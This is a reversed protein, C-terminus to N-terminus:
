SPPGQYPAMASAEYGFTTNGIRISDGNNLLRPVNWDLRQGNVFTGTASGVDAIVYGQSTLYIEAHRSFAQPNDVVVQNDPTRGITVVNAGLPIPGFPGRLVTDM